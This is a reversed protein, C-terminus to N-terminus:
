PCYMTSTELEFNLTIKSAITELQFRFVPIMASTLGM